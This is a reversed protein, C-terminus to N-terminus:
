KRPHLQSMRRKYYEDMSATQPDFETVSGAPTVTKIPMPAQSVKKPPEPKPVNGLRAEIKGIERAATLPHLQSIRQAEKPNKSFFKVLEIGDDSQVVLDAVVPSVMQGVKTITDRIYPDDSSEFSEVKEWFSSQVKAQQQQAQQQQFKAMVRQEAKNVLFEDKAKEFEEWTDFQDSSPAAQQDQKHQVPVAKAQEAPSNGKAEAVGRWYAAEQEAVQRRKRQIILDKVARSQPEAGSQETNQDNATDSDQEVPASETNVADNDIVPQDVLQNVPASETNVANENQSSNDQSEM